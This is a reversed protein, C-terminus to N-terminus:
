KWHSPSCWGEGCSGVREKQVDWGRALRSLLQCSLSSVAPSPSPLVQALLWQLALSVSGWGESDGSVVGQEWGLYPRWYHGSVHSPTAFM